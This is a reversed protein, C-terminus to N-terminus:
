SQDTGIEKCIEDLCVIGVAVADFMHMWYLLEWKTHPTLFRALAPFRKAIINATDQKTAKETHCITNRVKPPAYEYVTLGKQKAIFKIETAAVNLLASTKQILYTREIALASPNHEIILSNVFRTVGTLFSQAPQRHKFTKVGYYDIRNGALIAFGLEKAGPDIALIKPLTTPM